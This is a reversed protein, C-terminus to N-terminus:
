REEGKGSIVIVAVLAALLLVGAMEFQPLADGLLTNALSVLADGSTNQAPEPAVQSLLGSFRGVGNILLFVGVAVVFAAFDYRGSMRRKGSEDRRTAMIAFLMMVLVGGVYVFVQVAALLPMRYWAFFGAIALLFLGLGALMRVMERAFVVAVAGAVAALALGWFAADALNM